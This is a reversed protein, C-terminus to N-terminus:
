EISKLWEEHTMEVNVNKNIELGLLKAKGMTAATAASSQVTEAALAAQRNEELEKILDDVTIENRQAAEQRYKEIIAAVKGNQLVGIAKRNITEAKGNMSYGARKYSETANGTEIYYQAFREQKISLGKQSM